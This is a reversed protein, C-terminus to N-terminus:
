VIDDSIQHKYNEKLIIKFTSEGIGPLASTDSNSDEANDTQIRTNTTSGELINSNLSPQQNDEDPHELLEGQKFPVQLTKLKPILVIKENQVNKSLFKWVEKITSFAYTEKNDEDLYYFDYHKGIYNPNTNFSKVLVQSNKYRLRIGKWILGKKYGGTLNQIKKKSINLKKSADDKNKFSTVYNGFYDYQEIECFDFKTKYKGQAIGQRISNSLKLKSSESLENTVPDKLNMNSNLLDIYYKERIIRNELSCFELIEIKLNQIGYKNSINQLFNNSHKNKLLNNKHEYLRSYLNKSSGIYVYKDYSIKYIGIKGKLEKSSLNFLTQKEM